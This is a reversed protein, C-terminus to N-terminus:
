QPLSLFGVLFWDCYAKYSLFLFRRGPMVNLLVKQSSGNCLSMSCGLPRHRCHHDVPSGEWANWVERWPWWRLLTGWFAMEATVLAGLSGSDRFSALVQGWIYGDDRSPKQCCKTQCGPAGVRSGTAKSLLHPPLRPHCSATFLALSPRHMCSISGLFRIHFPWVEGLIGLASRRLQGGTCLASHAGTHCCRSIWCRIGEGCQLM